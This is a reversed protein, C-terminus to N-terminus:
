AKIALITNQKKLEDMDSPCTDGHEEKQIQIHM